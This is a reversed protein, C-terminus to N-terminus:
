DNFYGRIKQYREFQAKIHVVLEYETDFTLASQTIGSFRIFDDLEREDDLEIINAVMYKAFLEKMLDVRADEAELEAIKRKAKETKNFQSYLYTIPSNVADAFNTPKAKMREIKELERVIQDYTKPAKVTFTRLQVPKPMLGFKVDYRAKAVSDKLTFKRMDYGTVSALLTDSQRIRIHFQGRGDCFVGQQTRFNIVFSYPLDRGTELDYVSGYVDVEQASIRGFSLIILFAIILFQISSCPFLKNRNATRYKEKVLKM